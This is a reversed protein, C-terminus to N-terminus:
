TEQEHHVNDTNNVHNRSIDCKDEGQLFNERELVMAQFYVWPVGAGVCGQPLVVPALTPAGKDQPRLFVQIVLLDGLERHLICLHATRQSSDSGRLAVSAVSLTMPEM